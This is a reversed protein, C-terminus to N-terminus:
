VEQNGTQIEKHLSIVSLDCRLAMIGGIGSALLLLARMLLAAVAYPIQHECITDVVQAVLTWANVAIETNERKTLV